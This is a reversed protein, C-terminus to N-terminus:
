EIDQEIEGPAFSISAAMESRRGPSWLERNEANLGVQCNEGRLQLSLHTRRRSVIKVFLLCSSSQAMSLPLGRTARKRPTRANRLIAIRDVENMKRITA